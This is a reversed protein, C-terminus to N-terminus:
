TGRLPSEDDAKGNSIALTGIAGVAAALATRRTITQNTMAMINAGQARGHVPGTDLGLISNINVIRGTGQRRMGPLVDRVDLPVLEVGTLSRTTAAGRVGGFVRHGRDALLEATVRGIGSSAGTILVVRRRGNMM